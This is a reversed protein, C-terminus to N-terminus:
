WASPCCRWGGRAPAGTAALCSHPAPPVSSVQRLRHGSHTVGEPLRNIRSTATCAAGAISDDYQQLPHMEGHSDIAYFGGTRAARDYLLLGSNGPAAGTGPSPWTGAAAWDDYQALSARPAEQERVTLGAPAARTAARPGRPISTMGLEKMRRRAVAATARAGLGDLVALAARLEAEDDSSVIRTLAADYTRGVRIWWIYATGADPWRHPMPALAAASM